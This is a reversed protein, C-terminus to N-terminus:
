EREDHVEKVKLIKKWFDENATYSHHGWILRWVIRMNWLASGGVLIIGVCYVLMREDDPSTLYSLVACLASLGLFTYYTLMWYRHTTWMSCMKLFNIIKDKKSQNEELKLKNELQLKRFKALANEFGVFDDASYQKLILKELIRCYGVARTITTAKDFFIWWSPLLIILPSLLLPGLSVTSPLKFILGLLLATVTVSFTLFTIQCNKLSQLEQRIMEYEKFYHERDLM